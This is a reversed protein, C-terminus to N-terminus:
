EAKCKKEKKLLMTSLGSTTMIILFIFHERVKLFYAEQEDKVTLLTAGEKECHEESSQWKTTFTYKDKEYHRLM